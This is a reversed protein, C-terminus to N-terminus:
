DTCPWHTGPLHLTGNQQPSGLESLCHELSTTKPEASSLSATYVQAPGETQLLKMLTQVRDAPLIAKVFMTCGLHTDDATDETLIAPSICAGFASVSFSQVQEAEPDGVNQMQVFTGGCTEINAGATSM